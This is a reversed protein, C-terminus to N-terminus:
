LDGPTSSKLHEAIYPAGRQKPGGPYEEYWGAAANKSADVLNRVENRLTWASEGLAKIREYNYSNGQVNDEITGLAILFADYQKLTIHKGAYATCIQEYCGTLCDYAHHMISLKTNLITARNKVDAKTLRLQSM